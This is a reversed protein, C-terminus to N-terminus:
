ALGHESLAKKLARLDAWAYRKATPSKLLYDPHFMAMAPVNQSGQVALEFWKGRTRPIPERSGLLNRTPLDGLAVVLAPRALEIYRQVFVGCLALEPPTPPRAGPPRWPVFNVLHLGTRDLGISKLMKDLFLGTRGCLVRGERDDEAGPVDGVIMIKAGAGSEAFALHSAGRKLVCGEFSEMAAILAEITQAQAALQRAEALAEEPAIAGQTPAARIPAPPASALRPATRGTRPASPDQTAVATAPASEPAPARDAKAASEAFHDRPDAGVAIDVGMDVYWRLVAALEGASAGSMKGASIEQDSLM